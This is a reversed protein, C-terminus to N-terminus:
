QKLEELLEKNHNKWGQAYGECWDKSRPIISETKNASPQRKQTLWEIACNLFWGQLKQGEDWRTNPAVKVMTEFNENSDMVQKLTNM